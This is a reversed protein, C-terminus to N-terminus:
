MNKLRKNEPLYFNSLTGPRVGPVKPFQNNDVKIESKMKIGHKMTKRITFIGIIVKLTTKEL